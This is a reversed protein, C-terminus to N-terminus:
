RSNLEDLVTLPFGISKLSVSQIDGVRYHDTKSPSKLQRKNRGLIGALGSKRSDSAVRDSINWVGAQASEATVVPSRRYFCLHLCHFPSEEWTYNEGFHYRMDESYGPKFKLNGGHLRQHPVESWEQIVGFNYLKTVTKAVPSLYGSAAGDNRDWELCHLCNATVKFYESFEGALLRRRMEALEEQAYMEDGDVAFVWVPKGALAELPTHSERSEKIKRVEVHERGAAAQTVAQWTADESEHVFVYIQDCFELISTLARGATWEENRLLMVGVISACNEPAKSM